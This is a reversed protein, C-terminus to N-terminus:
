KNLLPSKQENIKINKESRNFPEISPLTLEKEKISIKSVPLFDILNGEIIDPTYPKVKFSYPEEAKKNNTSQCGAIM